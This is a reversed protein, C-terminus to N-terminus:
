HFQLNEAEIRGTVPGPVKACGERLLERAVYYITSRSSWKLQDIQVLHGPEAAPLAPEAVRRAWLDVVELNTSSYCGGAPPHHYVKLYALYQGNPSLTALSLGGAWTSTFRSVRRSRLSYNFIIYPSERSVLTALTFYLKLRHEDWYVPYFM